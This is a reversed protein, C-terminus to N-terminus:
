KGRQLALWAQNTSLYRRGPKPPRKSPARWYWSMPRCQRWFDKSNNRCSEPVESTWGAAWLEYAQEMDSEAGKEWAARAGLNLLSHDDDWAERGREELEQNTAQFWEEADFHERAESYSMGQEIFLLFADRYTDANM